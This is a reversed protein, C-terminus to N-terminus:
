FEPGYSPRFIRPLPCTTFIMPMIHEETSILTLLDSLTGRAGVARSKFNLSDNIGVSFNSRFDLMKSLNLIIAVRLEDFISFWRLYTVFFVIFKLCILHVVLTWVLLLNSTSTWNAAFINFFQFLSKCVKSLILTCLKAM